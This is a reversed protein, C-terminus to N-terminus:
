VLERVEPLSRLSNEWRDEEVRLTAFEDGGLWGAGRVWVDLRRQAAGIIAPGAIPKKNQQPRKAWPKPLKTM